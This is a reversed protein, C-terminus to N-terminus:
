RQMWQKQMYGHKLFDHRLQLFLLVVAFLLTVAIISYYFLFVDSLFEDCYRHIHEQLVRQKGHGHACMIYAEGYEGLNLKTEQKWRIVRSM